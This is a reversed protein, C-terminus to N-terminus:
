PRYLKERFVDGTPARKRAIATKAFIEIARL